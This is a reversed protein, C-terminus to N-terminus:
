LNNLFQFRLATHDSINIQEQNKMVEQKLKEKNQARGLLKMNM